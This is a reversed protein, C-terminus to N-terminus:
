ERKLGEMLTFNYLVTKHFDDFNLACFYLKKGTAYKIKGTAPTHINVIIDPYRM